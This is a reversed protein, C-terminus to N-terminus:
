TGHEDGSDSSESSRLCLSLHRSLIERRTVLDDSDAGPAKLSSVHLTLEIANLKRLRVSTTSKTKARTHIM